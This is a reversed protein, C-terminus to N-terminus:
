QVIEAQLKCIEPKYTGCIMLDACTGYIGCFENKGCNGNIACFSYKGCPPPSVPGSGTGGLVMSMLDQGFEEFSVLPEIEFFDDNSM